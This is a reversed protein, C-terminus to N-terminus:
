PPFLLRTTRSHFSAILTIRGRCADSIPKCWWSWISRQSPFCLPGLDLLTELVADTALVRCTRLHDSALQCSFWKASSNISPFLLSAVFPRKSFVDGIRCGTLGIQFDSPLLSADAVLQSSHVLIKPSWGIATNWTRVTANMSISARDRSRRIPGNACSMQSCSLREDRDPNPNKWSDRIEVM